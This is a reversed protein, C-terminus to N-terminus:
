AVGRGERVEKIVTAGDKKLEIFLDYGSSSSLDVVTLKIGAAQLKSRLMQMDEPSIADLRVIVEAVDDLSISGHMQAEAHIESAEYMSTPAVVGIPAPRAIENASDGITYTTRGQVEDKMVFKLEGYQESWMFDGVDMKEPASVGYIPRSAPRMSPPYGFQSAELVSRFGYALYGMSAGVEFQSMIRRTGLVSDIASLPVVTMVRDHKYDASVQTLKEVSKRGSDFDAQARIDSLTRQIIATTMLLAPSYSNGTKDAKLINALFTDGYSWGEGSDIGDTSVGMSALSNYITNAVRTLEEKDFARTEPDLGQEVSWIFPLKERDVMEYISDVAAQVEPSYSQPLLPSWPAGKEMAESLDDVPDLGQPLRADRQAVGNVVRPAPPKPTEAAAPAEPTEPAKGIEAETATEKADTAGDSIGLLKSTEEGYVQKLPIEGSAVKASDKELQELAWAPYIEDAYRLGRLGEIATRDGYTAARSSLGAIPVNRGALGFEYDEVGLLSSSNLDTGRLLYATGRGGTSELVSGAEDTSKLSSSVNQGFYGLNFQYSVPATSIFRGEEGGSLGLLTRYQREKGQAESISSALKESVESSSRPYYQGTVPDIGRSSDYTFRSLEGSIKGTRSFEEQASQLRELHTANDRDIRILDRSMMRNANQTNGQVKGPLEITRSPDLAGDVLEPAGMHALYRVSDDTGPIPIDYQKFLANYAAEDSAKLKNLEDTRNKLRDYEEQTFDEVDTTNQAVRMAKREARFEAREVDASLQARRSSLSDEELSRRNREDLANISERTLDKPPRDPNVSVKYKEGMWNGTEKFESVAEDFRSLYSKAEELEQSTALGTTPASTENPAKSIEEKTATIDAETLIPIDAPFVGKLSDSAAKAAVLTDFSEGKASPLAYVGNPLADSDRVEVDIDETGSKRITKGVVRSVTGSSSKFAFSFGGGMEAFRGKRDRRQLQARIRLAPDSNGGVNFDATSAHPDISATLPVLGRQVAAIRIFAHQRELSGPEAAHASAVLSRVSDDIYPDAAIWQARANLLAGATMAHMATSAPHCVPLLDSNALAASSQKDKTSLAAFQSVARLAAFTRAKYGTRSYKTADLSRRAVTMASNISIRRAPLASANAEEVMSIISARLRNNYRQRAKDNVM